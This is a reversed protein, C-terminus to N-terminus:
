FTDHDSVAIGAEWARVLEREATGRDSRAEKSRMRFWITGDFRDTGASELVAMALVASSLIRM